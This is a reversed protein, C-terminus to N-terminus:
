KTFEMINIESFSIQGDSIMKDFNKKKQGVLIGNWNFTVFIERMSFKESEDIKIRKHFNDNCISHVVNKEISKVLGDKKFYPTNNPSFNFWTLKVNPFDNILRYVENVKSGIANTENQKTNSYPAKNLIIETINNDNDYVVVDVKFTQKGGVSNPTKLKVEKKFTKDKYSDQNLFFSIVESNIDKQRQSGKTNSNGYIKKISDLM